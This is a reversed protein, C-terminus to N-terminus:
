SQCFLDITNFVISNLMYIKGPQRPETSHTQALSGFPQQNLGRDLCMAPSHALDGTPPMHPAVMSINGESGGEGM